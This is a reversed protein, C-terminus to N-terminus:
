SKVVIDVSMNDISEVDKEVAPPLEIKNKKKRLMVVATYCCTAAFLSWEVAAFVVGSYAVNCVTGFCVRQRLFVPLAVFGGLWCIMLVADLGLTVFPSNLRAFLETHQTLACFAVSILSLISIVVLFSIEVPAGQRHVEGWWDAVTREAKDTQRISIPQHPSTPKGYAVLVMTTM